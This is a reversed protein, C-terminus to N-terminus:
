RLRLDPDIAIGIAIAVGFIVMGAVHFLKIRLFTGAKCFAETSTGIPRKPSSLLSVDSPSSVM